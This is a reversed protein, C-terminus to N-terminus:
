TVLVQFSHHIKGIGIRDCVPLNAPTAVVAKIFSRFNEVGIITVLLATLDLSLYDFKKGMYAYIETSIILSSFIIGLASAGLGVKSKVM